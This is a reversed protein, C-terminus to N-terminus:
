NLWFAGDRDDGPRGGGGLCAQAAALLAGAIAQAPSEGCGSAEDDDIDGGALMVTALYLGEGGRSLMWVADAPLLALAASDTAGAALLADMRAIDCLEGLRSSVTAPAMFLLSIAERLLGAANDAAQEACDHVLKEARARWIGDALGMMQAPSIAIPTRTAETM